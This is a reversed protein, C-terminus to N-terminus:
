RPKRFRYAFQDTKGRIAPAFVNDTHPDGSQRWTDLAGDFTFGAKELEARAFAPDIRHLKEPAERASGAAAVHDVVVLIGGPKLAKFLAANAKDATDAPFPALYLDHFNQVTVIADVPEPIAPAGFPSRLPKVNAFANAVGDQDSGYEAKFAVFEAPQFAYVVGKPGVTGALVRTLYGGGMVFDVIKQGPKIGAFKILEAPKRAADRAKDADPRTPSALAAAVPDAKPAAVLALPAVLTAALLSVVFKNM